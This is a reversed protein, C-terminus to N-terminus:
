DRMKADFPQAPQASPQESLWTSLEVCDRAASILERDGRWSPGGYGALGSSLDGHFATTWAGLAALLGQSQQWTSTGGANNILQEVSDPDSVDTSGGARIVALVASAVGEVAAKLQAVAQPQDTESSQLQLAANAVGSAVSAVAPALLALAADASGAKGRDPDDMGRVVSGIVNHHADTTTTTM